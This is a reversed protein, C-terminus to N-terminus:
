FPNHAQEMRSSTEETVSTLWRQTLRHAGLGLVLIILLGFLYDTLTLRPM